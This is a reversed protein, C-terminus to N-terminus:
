AIICSINNLHDGAKAGRFVCRWVYLAGPNYGGNTGLSEEGTADMINTVITSGNIRIRIYNNPLSSLDETYQQVGNWYATVIGAGTKTVEYLNAGSQIGMGVLGGSVPYLQMKLSPYSDYTLASEGTANDASATITPGSTENFNVLNQFFGSGGGGPARYASAILGIRAIM